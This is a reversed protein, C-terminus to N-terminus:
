TTLLNQPQALHSGPNADTGCTKRDGRILITSAASTGFCTLSDSSTWVPPTPKSDAAPCFSSSTARIRIAHFVEYGGAAGRPGRDSPKRLAPEPGPPCVLAVPLRTPSEALSRPAERAPIGRSIGFYSKSHAGLTIRGQASVPSAAPRSDPPGLHGASRPERRASHVDDSHDRSVKELVPPRVM